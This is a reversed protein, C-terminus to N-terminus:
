IHTKRESNMAKMIVEPLQTIDPLDHLCIPHFYEYLLHCKHPIAIHHRLLQICTCTSVIPIGHKPPYSLGVGRKLSLRVDRPCLLVIYAITHHLSAYHGTEEITSQINSGNAGCTMVFNYYRISFNERPHNSKKM